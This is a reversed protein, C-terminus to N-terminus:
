FSKVLENIKDEYLDVVQQPTLKIKDELKVGDILLSEVVEAGVFKFTGELYKVHNGWLYWGYPAGQTALIQVKLHTLLGIADGKKSYKYSFTKNAVLVHDLFNKLLSSVNFNIMPASIVIKDINKLEEIYKESDGENFFSSFNEADICKHAMPLDNLNLIKVNDKPNLKKYKSIFTESLKYSISQEAPVPSSLILLVNSM